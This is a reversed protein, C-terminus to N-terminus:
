GLLGNQGLEAQMQVIPTHGLCISPFRLLRHKSDIFSETRQKGRQYRDNLYKFDLGGETFPIVPFSKDHSQIHLSGRTKGIGFTSLFLTLFVYKERLLPVQRSAFLDFKASWAKLKVM